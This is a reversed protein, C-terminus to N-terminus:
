RLPLYVPYSIEMLRMLNQDGTNNLTFRFWYVADTYGFSSSESFSWDTSNLAESISLDAASDQLFQVQKSPQLKGKHEIANIDGHAIPVLCFLLALFHFVSLHSM